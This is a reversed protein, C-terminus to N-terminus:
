QKLFDIINAAVQGFHTRADNLTCFCFSLAGLIPGQKLERSYRNLAVTANEPVTITYSISFALLLLVFVVFLSGQGFNRLTVDGELM